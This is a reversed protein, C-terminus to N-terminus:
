YAIVLDLVQLVFSYDALPVKVQDLMYANVVAESSKQLALRHASISKANGQSYLAILSILVKVNEPLM